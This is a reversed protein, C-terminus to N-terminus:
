CLVEPGRGFYFCKRSVELVMRLLGIPGFFMVLDGRNFFCALSGHLDKNLGLGSVIETYYLYNALELLFAMRQAIYRKDRWYHPILEIRPYFSDRVYKVFVVNWVSGIICFCTIGILFVLIGVDFLRDIQQSYM